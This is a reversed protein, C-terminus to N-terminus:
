LRINRGKETKASVQDMYFICVVLVLVLALAEIPRLLHYTSGLVPHTRWFGEEAGVQNLVLWTNECVESSFEVLICTQMLLIPGVTMTLLVCVEWRAINGTFPRVPGTGFVWIMCVVMAAGLSDLLVDNFDFYEVYDSFLVTFQYWEDILMFPLGLVLTGGFSRALPFLLLALIGFELAHIIEINMESLFYRHAVLSVLIVSFFALKPWRQSTDSWISRLVTWGLLLGAMGMIAAVVRNYTGLSLTNMALVSLDVFWGHAFLIFISYALVLLGNMLPRERLWNISRRIIM